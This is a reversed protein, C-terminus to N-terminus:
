YLYELTLMNITGSWNQTSRTTSGSTVVTQYSGTFEGVMYNIGFSGYNLGVSYTRIIGDGPIIETDSPQDKMNITTFGTGYGLGFNFFRLIQGRIQTEFFLHHLENETSKLTHYFYDMSVGGGIGFMFESSWGLFLGLPSGETNVSNGKNDSLTLSIPIGAELKAWDEEPEEKEEETNEPKQEEPTEATEEAQADTEPELQEPELSSEPEPDTEPVSEQSEKVLKDAMEELAQQESETTQFDELPDAQEPELISSKAAGLHVLKRQYRSKLASNPFLKLFLRIEKPKSSREVLQSM